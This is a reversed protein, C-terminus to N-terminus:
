KAAPQPPRALRELEQTLGLMILKRPIFGMGGVNVEKNFYDKLMPPRPTDLCIPICVPEFGYQPLLSRNAVTQVICPVERREKDRNVQYYAYARHSGNRLILRNEDAVYFASLNNPFYGVSIVFHHTANENLPPGGESTVQIQGPTFCRIGIAKHEGSCASTGCPLNKDNILVEVPAHPAFMCFDFLGRLDTVLKLREALQEVHALNIHPQFV